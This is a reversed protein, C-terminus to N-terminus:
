GTAALGPMSAIEINDMVEVAGERGPPTFSFRVIQYPWPLPTRSHPKRTVHETFKTIQRVTATAERWPGRPERPFFNAIISFTSRNALRGFKFLPGLELVRVEVTQGVRLAKDAVKVKRAAGAVDLFLSGAAPAVILLAIPLWLPILTRGALRNLLHLLGLSLPAGFMLGLILILGGEANM